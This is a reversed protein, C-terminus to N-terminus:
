VAIIKDPFQVNTEDCSAETKLILTQKICKTALFGCDADITIPESVAEGSALDGVCQRISPAGNLSILDGGGNYLVVSICVNHATQTGTNYLTPTLKRCTLGCKDQPGAQLVFDVPKAPSNSAYQQASQQVPQSAGSQLNSPTAGQGSPSQVFVVAAIVGIIVVAIIIAIAMITKKGPRPFGPEKKGSPVPPKM